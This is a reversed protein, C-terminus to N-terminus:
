RKELFTPERIEICCKWPEFRRSVDKAEIRFLRITTDMRMSDTDRCGKAVEVKQESKWTCVTGSGGINKGRTAPRQLRCQSEGIKCCECSQSTLRIALLLFRHASATLPHLHITPPNLASQRYKVDILSLTILNSLDWLLPGRYKDARM